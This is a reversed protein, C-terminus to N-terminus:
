GHRADSRGTDRPSPVHIRTRDPGFGHQVGWLVANSRTTVGIRRYCSRIYTKVSNISLNARDAIQANSLGQTILALVEAERPTLGVSRGPWDARGEDMRDPRGRWVGTEGRHIAQLAVVLQDAPLNKDVYGRAGTHLAAEVADEGTDWSYLVAAGVRPNTVLSRVDLRVDQVAAFTDYLAIDVADAVEANADLEVVTVVDRYPQLMSTLGAVIVEYDNVLALRITEVAGCYLGAM